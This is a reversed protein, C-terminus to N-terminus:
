PLILLQPSLLSDNFLSISYSFHFFRHIFFYAPLLAKGIQLMCKSLKFFPKCDDSGIVDLFLPDNLTKLKGKFQCPLSELVIQLTLINGDLKRALNHFLRKVILENNIAIDPHIHEFLSILHSM